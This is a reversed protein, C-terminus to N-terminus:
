PSVTLTRTACSCRILGGLRECMPRSCPSALLKQLNATSKTARYAFTLLGVGSLALLAGSIMVEVLLNGREKHKM